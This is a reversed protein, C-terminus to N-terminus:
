ILLRRILFSSQLTLVKLGMRTMIRMSAVVYASDTIEIGFKSYPSGLPGMCFPIVYMTRGAMCGDFLKDLRSKMEEPDAWNNTPGTDDKNSTCIFTKSEVRAVDRPDSRALFCNKKYKTNLPIFTGQKVLQASIEENEQKSGTCWHVRAPKTLLRIKEVWDLIKKNKTPAPNEPGHSLRKELYDLESFLSDPVKSGFQQYFTRIQIMLFYALLCVLQCEKLWEQCDIETLSSLVSDSLDLGRVDLSTPAPVFGIPTRIARSIPNRGIRKCVWKLVRSNEGFGPWVFKGDKGRRFWNVYFIKPSNYGLFKRFEIWHNWYDAMNYGCFPLMGFPDRRVQGISGEAAATM